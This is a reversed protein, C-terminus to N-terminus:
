DLDSLAKEMVRGVYNLEDQMKARMIDRYPAAMEDLYDLANAAHLRVYPNPDDLAAGIIGLAQENEGLQCLSWAAAVRVNPSSDALRATLAEAAPAAQGGLALCGEAAWYRVGSDPDDLMDILTALKEPARANAVELTTMYKALAYKGPDHAMEFPTSSGTRAVMDGEPLFGADRIDSVWTKCASRMRQLTEQYDPNEALNSVEHPDAETDYLEEMPKRQFFIKQAGRLEGAEHLRSWSQTAPMRWLYNLHQAWIMHPMYNRIYKYREDRVARMMDYREDMRGRFCYVYDPPAVSQRGLFAGGQMYAPIDIGALSLVTPALDVFSVLRDTTTGPPAPALHQYEEPFYVIMPVHVGSDYLFRKSRPLVGGHDSYYFVITDETLGDEELEALIEGVRKDMATIKDYYQAWDHRFEPTDPHYPPLPITGPKRTTDASKHLSSEHSITTNFISFFPQATNRKRWHAERSSEHWADEQDVTNYDKKSNNSCYYGADQLFKPFFRVFDPVPNYSRM